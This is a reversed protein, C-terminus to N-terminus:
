FIFTLHCSYFECIKTQFYFSWNLHYKSSNGSTYSFYFETFRKFKDRVKIGHSSIRSCQVKHSYKSGLGILHKQLLCKRNIETKMKLRNGDTVSFVFTFWALTVFRMWNEYATYTLISFLGWCAHITYSIWITRVWSRNCKM